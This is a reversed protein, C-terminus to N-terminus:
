LIRQSVIVMDSAAEGISFTEEVLPTNFSAQLELRFLSETLAQRVEYFLGDFLQSFEANLREHFQQRSDGLRQQYDRLVSSRRWILGAIVLFIGAALFIGGTIDLWLIPSLAAIVIGLGALLTGALALKRVNTTEAVKDKMIDEDVRIGELKSRLQQLM